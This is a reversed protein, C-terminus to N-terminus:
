NMFMFQELTKGPNWPLDRDPVDVDEEVDDVDDDEDDDNDDFKPLGKHFM